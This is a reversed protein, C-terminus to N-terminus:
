PYPVNVIPNIEGSITDYWYQDAVVSPDCDVWFLPEAVDFENDEVQCVRASNPYTEYVPKLPNGSWSAVYQVSVRPDILAKM